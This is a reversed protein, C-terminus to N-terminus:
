AVPPVPGAVVEAAPSLPPEALSLPPEAPSPPAEPTAMTEEDPSLRQYTYRGTDRLVAALPAIIFAGIGGFIAVGLAVLFLTQAPTFGTAGGKFKPSLYWNDVTSLVISILLVPILLSPETAWVVVLTTLFAFWFGVYPVLVGLGTVVGLGVPYPSGVAWLALATVVALLTGEMLMGRLYSFVNRHFIDKFAKLDGQFSDPVIRAISESATPREILLYFMFLPIFLLTVFMGLVSSVSSILATTPTTVWDAGVNGMAEISAQISEQLRPPVNDQYWAEISGNQAIAQNWFEGMQGLMEGTEEAIWRGVTVGALILLGFVVLYVLVVSLMRRAGARKGHGPLVRETFTVLPSLLYTLLIGILYPAVAEWTFWGIALIFGAVVLLFILRYRRLREARLASDIANDM